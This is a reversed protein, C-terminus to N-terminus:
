PRTRYTHTWTGDNNQYHGSMDAKSRDSEGYIPDTLLLRTIGGSDPYIGYIGLFHGSQDAWEVRLCVPNKAQLDTSISNDDLAGQVVSALNGTRTLAKDLYWWHNCTSSLGNACCDAQREASAVKCQTWPSRPDFFVSVSASVAAWCWETQAGQPQVTFDIQATTVAGAGGGLFKTPYADLLRKKKM